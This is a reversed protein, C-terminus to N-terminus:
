GAPYDLEANEIIILGTRPWQDPLFVGLERAQLSDLSRPYLRVVGLQSFVHRHYGDLFSCFVLFGTWSRDDKRKELFKKNKLRRAGFTFAEFALGSRNSGRKKLRAPTVYDEILTTSTYPTFHLHKYTHTNNTIAHPSECRYTRSSTFSNSIADGAPM